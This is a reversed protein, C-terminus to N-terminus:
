PCPQNDLRLTDLARRDRALDGPSASLSVALADPGYLVEVRARVAPPDSRLDATAWSATLGALTGTVRAADAVEADGLLGPPGLRVGGWTPASAPLPWRELVDYTARNTRDVARVVFWGGDLPVDWRVSTRGSAGTLCVPGDVPRVADTPAVTLAWRAAAARCAAPDAAVLGHSVFVALTWLNDGAGARTVELVRELDSWPDPMPYDAHLEVSWAAPPGGEAPDDLQVAEADPWRARYPGAIQRPDLPAGLRASFRTAWFVVREGSGLQRQLISLPVGTGGIPADYVTFLPVDLHIQGDLLDIGSSPLDALGACAAGAPPPAPPIMLDADPERKAGCGAALLTLTRHM